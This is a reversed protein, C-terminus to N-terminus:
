SVPQSFLRHINSPNPSRDSVLDNMRSLAAPLHQCRSFCFLLVSSRPPPADLELADQQTPTFVASPGSAYIGVDMEDMPGRLRHLWNRGQDTDGFSVLFLPPKDMDAGESVAAPRSFMESICVRVFESNM